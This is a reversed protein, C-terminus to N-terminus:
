LPRHNKKYFIKTFLILLFSFFLGSFFFTKNFISFSERFFIFPLLSILYYQLWWGNKSTSHIIKFIYGLSMFYFIAGIYGFNDLVSYSVHTAGFPRYTCGGDESLQHMLSQKEPLLFSPVFNIISSIYNLPVKFAHHEACNFYAAMSFSTLVPEALAIGLAVFLSQESDARWIGIFVLFTLLSITLLLYKVRNSISPKLSNISQTALAIITTLVYLRGGLSLLIASNLALAVYYFKLINHGHNFQKINLVILLILLNLTAIPGMTTPDYEVLYGKGIAQRADYSLIILSFIITTLLIKLALPPISKNLKKLNIIAPTSRGIAYSTIYGILFIISITAGKEYFRAFEIEWVSSGPVIEYLGSSYVLLPLAVYIAGGLCVLEFDYINKRTILFKNIIPILLIIFILPALINM